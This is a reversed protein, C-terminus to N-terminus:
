ALKSTHLARLDNPSIYDHHFGLLRYHVIHGIEKFGSRTKAKIASQNNVNVTTLLYRINERYLLPFLYSHMANLIKKGRFNKVVFVKYLYTKGVPLPIHHSQSLEMYGNMIWLYAVIENGYFALLCRDGQHLRQLSYRKGKWSYNYDEKNMSQIDNFTAFGYTLDIDSTIPTVPERLELEYILLRNIRYLASFLISVAKKMSGKFGKEACLTFFKQTYHSLMLTHPTLEEFFIVTLTGQPALTNHWHYHM